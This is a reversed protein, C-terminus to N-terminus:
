HADVENNKHRIILPNALSRHGTNRGIAQNAKDSSILKIADEEVQIIDHINNLGKETEAEELESLERKIRNREKNEDQTLDRQSYLEDWENLQDILLQAQYTPTYEFSAKSYGLSAMTNVTEQPHPMSLITVINQEKLDNRGKSGEITYDGIQQGYRKHGKIKIQGDCIVTYGKERFADAILLRNSAEHSNGTGKVTVTTLNEDILMQPVTVVYDKSKFVPALDSQLARALSKEASLLCVGNIRQSQTQTSHALRFLQKTFENLDEDIESVWDNDWITFQQESTFLKSLNMEDMFVFRNYAHKITNGAQLKAVTVAVFQNNKLNDNNEKIQERISGLQGYTIINNKLLELAKDQPQEEDSLDFYSSYVVEATTGAIENIIEGDGKIITFHKNHEQFDNRNKRTNTAFMVREDNMRTINSFEGVSRSKGAGANDVMILITNTDFKSYITEATAQYRNNETVKM